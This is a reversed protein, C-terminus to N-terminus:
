FQFYIFGQEPYEGLLIISLILVYYFMWRLLLPMGFLLDRIDGNRKVGEVCEMMVISGLGIYFEYRELGLDFLGRVALKLHSISGIESFLHTIIYFADSLTKARFFIWAFCVCVFTLIVKLTQHFAPFRDLGIGHVIKKRVEGTWISFLFYFGHLGGWILFTWGAGHWLGSLLFTIFLNYYWRWRVVRNGGLSIYLYDRFWTSLSIHWRRWFDSVSVAFYPRNFNDMVKFGMVQAAGIAMDSYGSFDCYIQFAFFVTAVLLPLGSYNEPHNYVQDVLISVRDAIVVKKFLGWIMIKLGDFVRQGEFDFKKHFQPILRDSREIPGALLQPFFSVYLAFIGLHPEPGMKRRYVDITYSMAKFTYFSIGIPLIWHFLTVPYSPGIWQIIGRLFENVFNLYKFIFLPTLSAGLGLILIMKRRSPDETRGLAMGSLYSILTPIILLVIYDPKWYMYFFFSAGLLLAWRYRHPSLFYLIVVVPFFILFPLSNFVM